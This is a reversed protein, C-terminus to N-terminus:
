YLIHLYDHNDDYNNFKKVTLIITIMSINNNCWIRFCICICSLTGAPSDGFLVGEGRDQVKSGPRALYVGLRAQAHPATM